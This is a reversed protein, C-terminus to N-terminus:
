EDDGWLHHQCLHISNPPLYFGEGYSITVYKKLPIKWKKKGDMAIIVAHSLITPVEDSYIPFYAGSRMVASGDMGEFMAVQRRYGPYRVEAGRGGFESYLAIRYQRTTRCFAATVARVLQM